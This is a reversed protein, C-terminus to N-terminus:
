LLINEKNSSLMSVVANKVLQDIRTGLKLDASFKMSELVTLKPQILDQQMIYCSIKKFDRLERPEGNITVLGAM